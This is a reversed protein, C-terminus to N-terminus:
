SQAAVAVRDGHRRRDVGAELVDDRARDRAHRLDNRMGRHERVLVAGLEQLGPIVCLGALEIREDEDDLTRDRVLLDVALTV